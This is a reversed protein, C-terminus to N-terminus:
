KERVATSLEARDPGTGGPRGYGMAWLGYGAARVSWQGGTAWYEM